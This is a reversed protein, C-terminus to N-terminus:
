WCVAPSSSDFRIDVLQRIHHLSQRGLYGYFPGDRQASREHMSHLDVPDPEHTRVLRTTGDISHAYARGGGDRQSPQPAM